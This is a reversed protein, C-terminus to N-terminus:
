IIEIAGKGNLKEVIGHYSNIQSWCQILLSSNLTSTCLKDMAIPQLCWCKCNTFNLKTYFMIRIRTHNLCNGDNDKINKNWFTKFTGSFASVMSTWVSRRPCLLSLSPGLDKFSVVMMGAARFIVPGLTVGLRWHLLPNKTYWCEKTGSTPCWGLRSYAVMKGTRKELLHKAPTNIWWNTDRCIAVSLPPFLTVSRAHSEIFKKGTVHNAKVSKM